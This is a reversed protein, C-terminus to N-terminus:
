PATVGATTLFVYDGIVLAVGTDNTWTNGTAATVTLGNTIGATGGIAINATVRCFRALDRGNATAAQVVTTGLAFPAMPDSASGIGNTPKWIMLSSGGALPTQFTSM